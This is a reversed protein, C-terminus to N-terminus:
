QSLIARCAFALEKVDVQTHRHYTHVQELKCRCMEHAHWTCTHMHVDVQGEGRICRCRGRGVYADVSVTSWTCWARRLIYIIDYMHQYTSLAGLIGRMRVYISYISTPASPAM